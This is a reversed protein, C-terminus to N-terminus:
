GTQALSGIPCQAHILAGGEIELYERGYGIRHGCKACPTGAIQILTQCQFHDCHRVCPGGPDGFKPVLPM